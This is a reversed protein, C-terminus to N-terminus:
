GYTGKPAWDGPGAILTETDTRPDVIVLWTGSEARRLEFRLEPPLARDAVARRLVGLQDGVQAFTAPAVSSPARGRQSTIDSLEGAM